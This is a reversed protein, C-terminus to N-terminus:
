ITPNKLIDIDGIYISAKEFQYDMLLKDILIKLTDNSKTKGYLKELIEISNL